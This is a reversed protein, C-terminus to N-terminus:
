LVMHTLKVTVTAMMRHCILFITKWAQQELLFTERKMMIHHPPHPHCTISFYEKMFQRQTNYEHTRIVTAQSMEVAIDQPNLANGVSIERRGVVGVYLRM